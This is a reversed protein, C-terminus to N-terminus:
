VIVPGIIEDVSTNLNIAWAVEWDEETKDQSGVPGADELIETDALIGTGTLGLLDGLKRIDEELAIEFDERMGSDRVHYHGRRFTMTKGNSLITRLEETNTITGTDTPGEM